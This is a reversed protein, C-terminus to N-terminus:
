DKRTNCDKLSLRYSYYIAFSSALKCGTTLAVSDHELVAFIM